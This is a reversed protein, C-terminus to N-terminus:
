CHQRRAPAEAVVHSLAAVLRDLQRALAHHEVVHGRAHGACFDAPPRGAWVSRVLSSVAVLDGAACVGARSTQLFQSGVALSVIPVGSLAAQLFVNPFGELQSTSLLAAARAFVAPMQAAPVRDVIGVNAPASSRVRFEVDPDRPNLIM